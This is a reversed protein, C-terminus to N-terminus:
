EKTTTWRDRRTTTRPPQQRACLQDAAYRARSENFRQLAASRSLQASCTDDLWIPKAGIRADLACPPQSLWSRLTAHITDPKHPVAAFVMALWTTSRPSCRDHLCAPCPNIPRDEDLM